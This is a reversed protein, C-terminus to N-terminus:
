GRADEMTPMKVGEGVVTMRQLLVRATPTSLVVFAAVHWTPTTEVILSRAPPTWPGRTQRRSAPVQTTRGCTSRAGAPPVRSRRAPAPRDWTASGRAPPPPGGIPDAVHLVPLVSEQVSLGGHEYEKGNVFV